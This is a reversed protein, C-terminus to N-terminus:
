SGHFCIATPLHTRHLPSMQQHVTDSPSSPAGCAASVPHTPPNPPILLVMHLILILYAPSPLGFFTTMYMATVRRSHLLNQPMLMSALCHHSSTHITRGHLEDCQLIIMFARVPLQPIVDKVMWLMIKNRGSSSALYRGDRSFSVQHVLQFDLNSSLPESPAHFQSCLPRHSKTDWLHAVNYADVCALVNHTSSLAIAGVYSHHVLCHLLTGSISDFVRAAQSFPGHESSCYLKSGDSSWVLSNCRVVKGCDKIPGVLLGGTNSDWICISTYQGGSAIRDGSPSYALSDMGYSGDLVIPGKEIEGNEVKLILIKGDRPLYAINGGSPSWSLSLVAGSQAAWIGEIMEGDTNWRQISGDNRGCAITKGDPSLVLVCEGAGESVWPEGVLLGTDCNWKYITGSRTGSVIHINDHLFIFSQFNLDHDIEFQHKATPRKPQAPDSAGEVSLSSSM